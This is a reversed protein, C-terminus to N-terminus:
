FCFHGFSAQFIPAIQISVQNPSREFYALLKSKIGRSQDGEAPYLEASGDLLLALSSQSLCGKVAEQISQDIKEWESDAALLMRRLDIRVSPFNFLQPILTSLVSKGTRPLGHVSLAVCEALGASDLEFWRLMATELIPGFIGWAFPSSGAISAPSGQQYRGPDALLVLIEAIKAEDLLDEQWFAPKETEETLFQVSFQRNTSMFMNLPLLLPMKPYSKVFSTFEEQLRRAVEEQSLSAAVVRIIIKSSDFFAFSPPSRLTPEVRLVGTSDVVKRLLPAQHLGLSLLGPCLHVPSGSELVSESVLLPCFAVDGQTVEAVKFVTRPGPAGVVLNNLSFFSDKHFNSHIKKSFQLNFPTQKSVPPKLTQPTRVEVEANDDIWGYDLAPDESPQIVRLAVSTRGSVTLEFRQDRFVVRIQNLFDTELPSSRGSLMEHDSGEAVEVVVRQSIPYFTELVVHGEM